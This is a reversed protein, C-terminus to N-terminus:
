FSQVQKPLFDGSLKQRGRQPSARFASRFRAATVVGAASRQGNHPTQKTDKKDREKKEEKRKNLEQSGKKGMCDRGRRRRSDEQRSQPARSKRRDKKWCRGKRKKQYPIKNGAVKHKRQVSAKENSGMREQEATRLTRTGIEDRVHNRKKAAKRKSNWSPTKKIFVARQRERIKGDLM